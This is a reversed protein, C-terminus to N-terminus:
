HFCNCPLFCVKEIYIKGATSGLMLIHVNLLLSSIGTVRGTFPKHVTDRNTTLNKACLGVTM